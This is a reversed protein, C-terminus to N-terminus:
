IFRLKMDSNMVMIMMFLKISAAMEILTNWSRVLYHIEKLNLCQALKMKLSVKYGKSYKRKHMSIMLIRLSSNITICIMTITIKVQLLNKQTRNQRRKNKKLNFLEQIRLFKVLQLNEARVLPQRSLKILTKKHFVRYM